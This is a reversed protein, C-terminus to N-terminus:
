SSSIQHKEQQLETAMNEAITKLWERTLPLKIPPCPWHKIGLLHLMFFFVLLTFTLFKGNHNPTLCFEIVKAVHSCHNISTCGRGTRLRPGSVNPMCGCACTKFNSKYLAARNAAAHWLGAGCLIISHVGSASIAAAACINRLRWKLCSM